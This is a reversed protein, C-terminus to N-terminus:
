VMDAIERELTELEADGVEIRALARVDIRNDAMAVSYGTTSVLESRPLCSLNSEFFM